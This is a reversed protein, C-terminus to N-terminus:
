LEPTFMWFGTILGVILWVTFGLFIGAWYPNWTNWKMGRWEM